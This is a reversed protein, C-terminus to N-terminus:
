CSAASATTKALHEFAESLEVRLDISLTRKEPRWPSWRWKTAANSRSCAGM